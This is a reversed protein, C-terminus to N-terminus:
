KDWVKSGARVRSGPSTAGTTQVAIGPRYTSSGGSNPQRASRCRTSTLKIRPAATLARTLVGAMTFTSTFRGISAHADSVTDYRASLGFRVGRWFQAAQGVSQGGIDASPPLPRAAGLSSPLTKVWPRSQRELDRNAGLSVMGIGVPGQRCSPPSNRFDSVNEGVWGPRSQRRKYDFVSQRRDVLHTGIGFEKTDEHAVTRANNDRVTIHQVRGTRLAGVLLGTAFVVFAGVVLPAVRAASGDVVAATIRPRKDSVGV